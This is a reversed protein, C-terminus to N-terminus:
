ILTVHNRILQQNRTDENANTKDGDKNMETQGTHGQHRETASEMTKYKNKTQPKVKKKTIKAELIFVNDQM